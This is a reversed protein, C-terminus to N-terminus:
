HQSCDPGIVNHLVLQDIYKKCQEPKYLLDLKGVYPSSLTSAAQSSVDRYTILSRKVNM